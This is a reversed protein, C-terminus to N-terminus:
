RTGTLDNRNLLFVTEEGSEHSLWTFPMHPFRQELAERSEGVEVILLGGENLHEAAQLLIRDVIDLGNDEAVLALEPEHKYEQPLALM